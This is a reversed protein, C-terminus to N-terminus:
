PWRHLLTEELKQM